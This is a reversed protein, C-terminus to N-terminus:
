FGEVDPVFNIKQMPTEQAILKAAGDLWDKWDTDGDRNIKGNSKLFKIKYKLFPVYLDYFPEDFTQSDSTIPPIITYYDGKVDQGDWLSTVPIDFSLIGNDVTYATPVGGSFIGRQWM